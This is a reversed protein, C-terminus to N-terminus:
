TGTSLFPSCEEMAILGIRDNPGQLALEIEPERVMFYAESPGTNPKDILVFSKAGYDSYAFANRIQTTRTSTNPHVTMAAVRQGSNRTYTAIVGSKAKHRTIDSRIAKEDWPVVPAHSLVMRDGLFVECVHPVFSGSTALRLRVRTLGGWNSSDVRVLRASTTVTGFDYMDMPNSSWDDSDATQLKVGVGGSADAFNHGAIVFVDATLLPNAEMNLYWLTGGANPRTDLHWFRDQIRAAPYGASTADTGNMAGSTTWRRNYAAGELVNRVVFAPFDGHASIVTTSWPM